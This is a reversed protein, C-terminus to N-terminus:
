GVAPVVSWSETTFTLDDHIRLAEPDLYIKLSMDDQGLNFVRFIAYITDKKGTNEKMKEFLAKSVFFPTDCTSTTTKVEILYQPRRDEWVKKKLHGKAILCETLAGQSDMYVVDAKETGSWPAMTAYEPHVSVYRRISSQWNDRTLGPLKRPDVLHSLLEFVRRSQPNYAALNALDQWDLVLPPGSSTSGSNEDANGDGNQSIPTASSKSAHSTDNKVIEGASVQFQDKIAGSVSTHTQLERWAEEDTNTIDLMPIGNDRLARSVRSLPSVLVAQVATVWNKKLVASINTTPDKMMWELLRQPLVTTFIYEQDEEDTPVYIKSNEQSEEIHLTTTEGQAKYTTHGRLVFDSSIGNTEYIDTKQLVKYFHSLASTGQVRPSSFHAAIQISPVGRLLAHARNRIQRGPNSTQNAPGGHFSTVERTSSSLYNPELGSWKLFPDLRVIDAISFDLFSVKKEFMLRLPERDEIFSETAENGLEVNGDPRRIPFIHGSVVDTQSPHHKSSLLLSNVTWILEKVEQQKASPNSGIDRLEDVAMTLDIPKVGLYKVFLTPNINSKLADMAAFIGSVTSMDDCGAAALARLEKVFIIWTGNAISLTDNFFATIHVSKPIDRDQKYLYELAHKSKMQQPAEWVCEWPFAWTCTNEPLPIFVSKNKNFYDRVLAKAEDQNNAERQKASIYDYLEFLRAKPASPVSKSFAKVSYKLMDLAFSLESEPSGVGLADMTTQWEPPIAKPTADLDAELWPFFFEHGLYREVRKTLEETPFYADKLLSRRNGQCLFEIDSLYKFQDPSADKKSQIWLHVCGLFKDPRHKQLYKGDVSLANDGIAVVRQVRLESYLWERWTLTQGQPTAPSDKLYESNVFLSVHGPASDGPNPGVKTKKFVQSAGYSNDDEVYIVECFPRRPVSHGDVFIALKSYKVEKDSKMHHSLYLFELHRKSSPITLQLAKTEKQYMQLIKNRVLDIPAMVVGLDEFLTKRHPNTINSILRLGIDDQLPLLDMEKLRAKANEMRPMQFPQHLFKAFCEHWNDQTKPSKIRSLPGRSLDQKILELMKQGPFPGLGFHRLICLDEAGYHQSILQDHDCDDLLPRGDEDKFNNWPIFVDNILRLHPLRRGLLIPTKSLKDAIKGILSLWLTGWDRSGKNPLYRMWQYRLTDHECFQLVARIFADAIGDLLSLNRLSDKVTDQRAADTVLDAQILFRFGISRVPLFVFLDQPHSIPVSTTSLPFALTVQSKSYARSAEEAESYTRNENKVLNTAEHTTVHYHKIETESNGEKSKTRSLVAFNLRPRAISYTASTTHEEKENYFTVNIKTLNKMFLLFTEQLEKFQSEITQRTKAMMDGDETDHLHLIIRTLPSEPLDEKVDEWIPSIMGMGSDGRKHTFFFSFAGSQIHVKWAAMFVSKFGIGKEGIYGQAGTKSSQGVSCIAVLNEYNFGDENCELVIRNPYVRFSVFPDAKAERAKTYSNDDANQLLEFVFRAKSTYLNKSLTIVSSGVMQDKKRLAELIDHRLEEDGLEQLRESSIYGHERTIREVLDKASQRDQPIAMAEYPRRDAVAKLRAKNEAGYSSIVDQFMSAYNMYVYDNAVGREVSVAKIRTLIKSAVGYVAADDERRDWWAAVQMIYVPRGKRLVDELGLPNGGNKQMKALIPLTFGQCSLVPLLGSVDDLAGIEEYFIDKAAILVDASALFSFGYYMERRGDPNSAQVEATYNYLVRNQRTDSTTSIGEFAAWAPSAEGDPEAYYHEVSAVRTGNQAAMALWMGARHDKSAINDVTASFAKCMDNFSSEQYVLSGGWMRGGPLPITEMHFNVVIGFNNGGGRLAWYLDPNESVSATTINGQAGVVDYAVVNDCALGYLSSFFSIGGGTTLGGVGINEVRGGIVAVDDKQLVSYVSGWTNGPQVSAVKKDTSLKVNALNQFSVTIGGEISSAGAFAAHGGSRVAFPCQTFRSLLILVSVAEPSSPKFICYPHVDSQIASWYTGVYSTYAAEDPRDVSDAGYHLSRALATRCPLRWPALDTYEDVAFGHSQLAAAADFDAHELPAGAVVSNIGTLALLLQSSLCRM